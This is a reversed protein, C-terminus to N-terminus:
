NELGDADNIPDLINMMRVKPQHILMARRQISVNNHLHAAPCIRISNLCRNLPHKSFSKSNDM